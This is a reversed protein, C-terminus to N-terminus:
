GLEPAVDRVLARHCGAVDIGSNGLAFVDDAAFEAETAVGANSELRAADNGVVLRGIARESHMLRVLRRRLLLIDIRAQEPEVLVLDADVRGVHATRKTYLLLKVAVLKRGANEAL